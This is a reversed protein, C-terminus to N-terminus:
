FGIRNKRGARTDHIDDAGVESRGALKANGFASQISRRMERPPLSALKDLAAADLTEPFQRGWDHANRMERYISAARTEDILAMGGKTMGHRSLFKEDTRVLVDFIANGIALVDYKAESM